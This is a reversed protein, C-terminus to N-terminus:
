STEFKRQFDIAMVFWNEPSKVLIAGLVTLKLNVTFLRWLVRGGLFLIRGTQNGFTRGLFFTLLLDFKLNDWKRWWIRGCRTVAPSFGLILGNGGERSVCCSQFNSRNGKHKNSPSGFDQFLVDAGDFSKQNARGKRSSFRTKSSVSVM